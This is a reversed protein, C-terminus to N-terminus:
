FNTFLSLLVNLADGQGKVYSLSPNQTYSLGVTAYVGPAMHGTYSVLFTNSATNAFLDTYKSYSNISDKLYSSIGNYTYVFALMDLPRSALAGIFYARAEYYEYFPINKEPGYMISGGLYFGRHATFISDPAFQLMQLDAVLYGGFIGSNTGGSQYNPFESTNYMGGARIWIGPQGPAAKAKYGFENMALLKGNPVTFDFGTPNYYANDYLTSGTPGNIPLSRMIGFQNYFADDIHWTVRASPQTAPSGSIGLEFPVTASAGLPNAINGGVATGVWEVSNAIYGVKIELAKDFLTQYWSLANLSAQNPAYHQWTSWSLAGSLVFQGDPVGFQGLDYTLYALSVNMLSPKQGWYQQDSSGKGPEMAPGPGNRPVPLTNSVALMTNFWTLGLGYEALASRFGGYDQLISDAFSPFPNDFGKVGFTKDLRAVSNQIAALQASDSASLGAGTLSKRAVQDKEDGNKRTKKRTEGASKSASTSSGAVEQAHASSVCAYDLYLAILIILIIYSLPNSRKVANIRSVCRPLKNKRIPFDTLM